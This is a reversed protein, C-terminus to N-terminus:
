YHWFLKGMQRVTTFTGIEFIFFPTQLIYFQFGLFILLALLEIKRIGGSYNKFQLFYFLASVAISITLFIACTWILETICHNASSQDVFNRSVFSHISTTNDIANIQPLPFLFATLITVLCVIVSVLTGSVKQLAAM